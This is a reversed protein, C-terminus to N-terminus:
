AAGPAVIDKIALTTYQQRHGTKKRYRVKSKYRFVIVKKHKGSGTATAMVKAGAVTPTGVTIGKDTSLLLVRDLQVTEGERAELLESRITQGPSVRYQKGACEIVAYITTRWVKTLVM